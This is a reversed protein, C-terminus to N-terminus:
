TLRAPRASTLNGSRARKKPHTSQDDIMGAVATRELPSAAKLDGGEGSLDAFAVGVGLLKTNEAIHKVMQGLDFGIEGFYDVQLEKAAQRETFNSRQLVDHFTGNLPAPFLCAEIKVALKM